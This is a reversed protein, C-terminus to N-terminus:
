ARKTRKFLGLGLLGGAALLLSGPEPATSGPSAVVAVDDLFSQAPDQRALFTLTTSTGTATLGSVTYQNYGSNPTIESAALIVPGSSGTLLLREVLAGSWLVDLESVDTPFTVSGPDYWFTLTYTAGADTSLVQSLSNMQNATGNICADGVCGTSAALLGSNANSDRRWHHDANTNITWGTFSNITPSSEFGGNVVISGGFAATLSLFIPTFRIVAFIRV